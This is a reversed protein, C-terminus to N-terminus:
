ILGITLKLLTLGAWIMLTWWGILAPVAMVMLSWAATLRWNRRPKDRGPAQRVPEFHSADVHM